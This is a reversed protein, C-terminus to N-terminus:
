AAADRDLEPPAGRLGREVAALTRRTGSVPDVLTVADAYLRPTRFIAILARSFPPAFYREGVRQRLCARVRPYADSAMAPFLHHEIHHSFHFHLWDLVPHATVSMSTTLSDRESSLPRLMHNTVIYSMVGLNAIMTPVLVGLIAGRWGSAVGLAVYASAVALSYLGARGRQLRDFGPQHRSKSWLVVQGHVNFTFFLYLVSLWHGPGPSLALLLRKHLAGAREYAAVTGVSDPDADPENTHGHHARNHWARWFTPEVWYIALGLALIVDQLWRTRVTAGHGVEHAFHLLSAYTNGVVISLPIAAWLPLPLAIVAWTGAAIAAVMPVAWLARWPRPRFLWAPLDRRIAIRLERESMCDVRACVM